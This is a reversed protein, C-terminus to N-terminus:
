HSVLKSGNILVTCVYMVSVCCLHYFLILWVYLHICSLRWCILHLQDHIQFLRLCSTKQQYYISLSAMLFTQLWNYMCTSMRLSFGSETISQKCVSKCLRLLLKFNTQISFLISWVCSFGSINNYICLIFRNM